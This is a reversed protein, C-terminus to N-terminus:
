VMPAARPKQSNKFNNPNGKQNGKVCKLMKAVELVNEYSINLNAELDGKQKLECGLAILQKIVFNVKKKTDREIHVGVKGTFGDFLHDHPFRRSGTVCIPDKAEDFRLRLRNNKAFSIFNNQIIDLQEPTM